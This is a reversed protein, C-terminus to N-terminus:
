MVSEVTQIVEFQKKKVILSPQTAVVVFFFTVTGKLRRPNQMIIETENQGFGGVNPDFTLPQDIKVSDNIKVCIDLSTPIIQVTSKRAADKITLNFTAKKRSAASTVKGETTSVIFGNNSKRGNPYVQGRGRNGGVYIPYTLFDTNARRIIRLSPALIPFRLEQNEDGSLPGIVLINSKVKNYPQVYSYKSSFKFENFLRNSPALKFGEPLILM